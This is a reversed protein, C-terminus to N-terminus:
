SFPLRSCSFDLFFGFGEIWDVVSRLCSEVTGLDDDLDSLSRSLFGWGVGQVADIDTRLQIIVEVVSVLADEFGLLDQAVMGLEARLDEAESQLREVTQESQRLRGELDDVLRWGYYSVGAFGLALVVLGALLARFRTTESM